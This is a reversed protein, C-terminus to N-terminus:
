TRFEFKFDAVRNDSDRFLEHFEKDRALCAALARPYLEVNCHPQLAVHQNLIQTDEPKTEGNALKDVM